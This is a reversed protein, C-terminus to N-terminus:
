RFLFNRFFLAQNLLLENLRQAKSCIRYLLNMKWSYSYKRHKSIAVLILFDEQSFQTLQIGIRWTLKLFTRENRKWTEKLQRRLLREEVRVVVGPHKRLDKRLFFGRLFDDCVEVSM